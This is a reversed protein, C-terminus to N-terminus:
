SMHSTMKNLCQYFNDTYKPEHALLVPAVNKEGKGNYNKNAIILFLHNQRLPDIIMAVIM